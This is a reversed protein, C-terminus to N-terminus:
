SVSAEEQSRKYRKSPRSDKEKGNEVEKRKRKGLYGEYKKPDLVFNVFRERLQGRSFRTGGESQAIGRKRVEEIFEKWPMNDVVATVEEKNSHPMFLTCTTSAPLTDERHDPMAEESILDAQSFYEVSKVNRSKAMERSIIKEKNRRDVNHLELQFKRRKKEISREWKRQKEKREDVREWRKLLISSVQVGLCSCLTSYLKVRSQENFQLTSFNVRDEYKSWFELSKPCFVTTFSNLTEVRCTSFGHCFTHAQQTNEQVITALLDHKDKDAPKKVDLWARSSPKTKVAKNVAALASLMYKCTITLVAISRPENIYSFVAVLMEVPLTSWLGGNEKGKLKTLSILYPLYNCPCERPCTSRSYHDIVFSWYLLFYKTTTEIRFKIAAESLITKDFKEAKAKEAWLVRAKEEAGKLCRMWFHAVRSVFAKYKKSEGFAKSLKKKLNKKIHGPDFQLAIKRLEPDTFLSAISGDQDHVYYKWKEWLGNEHLWELFLLFGTVEMFKSTSPYNGKFATIWASTGQKEGIQEERDKM